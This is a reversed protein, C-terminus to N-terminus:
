RVILPWYGQKILVQKLTKIPSVIKPFYLWVQLNFCPCHAMQFPDTLYDQSSQFKTINVLVHGAGLLVSPCVLTSVPKLLYAYSLLRSQPPTGDGLLCLQATRAKGESALAQEKKESFIDPFTRESRSPKFSSSDQYM